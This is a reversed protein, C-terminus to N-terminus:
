PRKSKLIWHTGKSAKDSIDLKAIPIRITQSALMVPRNKVKTNYGEISKYSLVMLWGKTPQRTQSGRKHPYSKM